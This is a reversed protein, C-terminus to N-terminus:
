GDSKLARIIKDLNRFITKTEGTTKKVKFKTSGICLVGHPLSLNGCCKTYNKQVAHRIILDIDYLIRM